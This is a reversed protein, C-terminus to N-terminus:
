EMLEPDSFKIVLLEKVKIPAKAMAM